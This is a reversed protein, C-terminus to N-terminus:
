IVNIKTQFHLNLSVKWMRQFEIATRNSWRCRSVIDTKRLHVKNFELLKAITRGIFVIFGYKPVFFSKGNLDIVAIIEILRWNLVRRIYWLNLWYGLLLTDISVEKLFILLVKLDTNSIRLWWRKCIWIRVNIEVFKDREIREQFIFDFIKLM